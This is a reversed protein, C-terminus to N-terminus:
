TFTTLHCTIDIEESSLCSGMASSRPPTDMELRQSFARLWALTPPTELEEIVETAGAMSQRLRAVEASLRAVEAEAANARDSTMGPPTVVAHHQPENSPMAETEVNADVVM